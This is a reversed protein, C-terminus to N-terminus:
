MRNKSGCCSARDSTVRSSYVVYDSVSNLDSRVYFSRRKNCNGDDGTNYITVKWASILAYMHNLAVAMAYNYCHQVRRDLACTGPPVALLAHRLGLSRYLLVVHYAVHAHILLMDHLKEQLARFYNVSQLQWSVFLTMYAACCSTHLVVQCATANGVLIVRSWGAHGCIRSLM